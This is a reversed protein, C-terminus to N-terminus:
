GGGKEGQKEGTQGGPKVQALVLARKRRGNGIKKGEGYGRDKKGKGGQGTAGGKELKSTTGEHVCVCRNGGGNEM